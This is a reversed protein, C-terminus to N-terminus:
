QDALGHRTCYAAAEARNATGTKNLINSVHRAVTNLSIVLEQAIQPNSRGLTILCLVEVERKTLGDPYAATRKRSGMGELSAAARAMMPRMGLEQSITLAEELLSNGKEFDGPQNRQHLVDAYDCDTWALNVRYGAKRCFDLAEEFHASADDLQGTTGALLGLLHDGSPVGALLLTGRARALADYQKNAMELDHRHVATLALGARAWMALQPTVAAASLVSEAAAEALELHDPTGTAQAALPILMAPLAYEWTPGPPALRLTELLQELYVAGQGSDGVEYEVRARGYLLRADWPLVELGRVSFDRASRWDGGLIAAAANVWFASALWFRDRLREARALCERAQRRAGDLNGVSTLAVAADWRARVEIVPDEFREAYEIAQLSKDLGDSWRTQHMDVTASYALTRMKLAEDNERQAIDIARDFSNQSGEYDGSAFYLIRGYTSLLRGAEHSDPPILDLAQSVLETRRTDGPVIVIPYEAVAIAKPIDESKVYYEFARSLNEWAPQAQGTAAQARGLGFLLAGAEDDLPRENSKPATGTAALAREFYSLAEEYAFSALAQEGALLSYRVMTETGTVALAETFHYTLEAAHAAPDGAYLEELAQGIRAHLRVRRSPSLEGSLTEQILSHTFQYRGISRPLEDIIRASLAEELVELLRDESLDDILRLLQELTFERGIVSAISLTQNCRQSLSSLRRGIVERVGAPIKLAWAEGKGVRERTLEGEQVLLRVVETVFLPNGETQSHVAEALGLPPPSGTTLEIFRGIDQQTLGRLVVRQFLRERTMEGLARVLPHDRSLEIDRYTGVLLIRSGALELALFELLLLSPKDAWHLDDLILVIPQRRAANKLFTAISDFLRFRAQDPDHPPTLSLNPLQQKVEPVIEAIHAAGTGMESRVQEIGRELVYSRIAQIWPWYPPAGQEEYCRGWLVQARRLGAYTALEVATRTKGIGPEGVLVAMHGRGSLSDELAAKLEDTERQRGVIVGGALRDLSPTEIDHGTEEPSASTDIADLAALVETASEPREVPDKALLRLILAELPRPCQPNHWAPAVPQVNIHQGIISVSDDGLFPPRGTVMEYLMAGLSYLDARPTIEGGMTQEPPIYSVTGLILGEQTLRSRHLATALGFDGIKATGDETLWVNGPKLDRHFIGKAHAFELARCVSRAIDITQELPIRNGQANFIATGVDGGAMLETVIYPQGQHHGLDFVAVINPHSGLRGMAQAELAVRERSVDDLGTTRIIALAVDRDLLTDHALYVRKKAGEGLTGKILYRDNSLSTPLEDSKTEPPSSVSSRAQPIATPPAAAGVPMGCADCFRAEGPLDVGCNSCALILSTGCNLCFTAGERNNHGCSPCEM